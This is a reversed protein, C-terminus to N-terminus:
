NKWRYYTVETVGLEGATAAVDHGEAQLKEADQLKRLIQEPTHDRKKSTM